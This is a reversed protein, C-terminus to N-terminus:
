GLSTGRVHKQTEDIDCDRPLLLGRDADRSVSFLQASRASISKSPLEARASLRLM